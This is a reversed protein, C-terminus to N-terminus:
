QLNFFQVPTKAAQMRDIIHGKLHLWTLDLRHDPWVPGALGGQKIKDGAGQGWTRTSNTKMALLDLPSLGM